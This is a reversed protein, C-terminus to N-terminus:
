KSDEICWTKNKTRPFMSLFYVSLMGVSQHKHKMFIQGNTLLYAFFINEITTIAM